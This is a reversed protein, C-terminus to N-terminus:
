GVSFPSRFVKQFGEPEKGYAYGTRYVSLITRECRATSYSFYLVTKAKSGGVCFEKYIYIYIYIIYIYIYRLKVNPFEESWACFARIMTNVCVNLPFDVAGSSIAPFSVCDFNHALRLSKICAKNLVKDEFHTGGQRGPQGLLM